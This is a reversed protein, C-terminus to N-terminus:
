SIEIFLDSKRPLFYCPAVVTLKCSRWSTAVSLCDQGFQMRQAEFLRSCSFLRFVVAAPHCTAGKAGFIQHMAVQKENRGVGERLFGNMVSNRKTFIQLYIRPLRGFVNTDRPLRYDKLMIINQRSIFGPSSSGLVFFFILRLLLM